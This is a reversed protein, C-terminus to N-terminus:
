KVRKLLMKFWHLSLHTQKRYLASTELACQLSSLVLRLRILTTVIARFEKNAREVIFM